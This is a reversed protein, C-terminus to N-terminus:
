SKFSIGLAISYCRPNEKWQGFGTWGRALGVFILVEENPSIKEIGQKEEKLDSFDNLGLHDLSTWSLKIIKGKGDKVRLFQQVKKKGMQHFKVNCVKLRLIGYSPCDVGETVYAKYHKEIQNYDFVLKGHFLDSLDNEAYKKLITFMDEEDQGGIKFQQDVVFDDNKHPYKTDPDRYAQKFGYFSGVELPKDIPWCCTHPAERYIPRYFRQDELNLGICCFGKNMRTKVVILLSKNASATTDKVLGQLNIKVESPDYNRLEWGEFGMFEPMKESEYHMDFDGPEGVIPLEVEFEIKCNPCELSIDTVFDCVDSSEDGYILDEGQNIQDLITEYHCDYAIDEIEEITLTRTCRDCTYCIDDSDM